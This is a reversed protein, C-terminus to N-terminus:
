PAAATRSIAAEILKAPAAGQVIERYVGRADIFYLEPLGGVRYHAAVGGSADRVNVFDLGLEAILARAADPDDYVNVGLVRVNDDTRQFQNLTRLTEADNPSWSSWFIIVTVARPTDLRFDALEISQGQDSLNPLSFNTALRGLELAPAADPVGQGPIAPIPAAPALLVLDVPSSRAWRGVALSSPALYRRAPQLRTTEDASEFLLDFEIRDQQIRRARIRITHDPAIYIQESRLWRNTPATAHPFRRQQPCLREPPEGLDLCLELTDPSVAQVVIRATVIEVQASVPGSSGSWLLCAVALTAAMIGVSVSRQAM